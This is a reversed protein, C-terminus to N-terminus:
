PMDTKKPEDEVTLFNSNGTQSIAKPYQVSYAQILERKSM